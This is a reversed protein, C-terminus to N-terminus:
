SAADEWTGRLRAIEEDLERDRQDLKKAMLKFRELAEQRTMPDDDDEITFVEQCSLRGSIKKQYNTLEWM